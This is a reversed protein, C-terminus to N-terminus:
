ATRGGTLTFFAGAIRNSFRSGHRWFLRRGWSIGGTHRLGPRHGSFATRDPVVVSTVIGGYDSLTVSPGCRGDPYVFTRRGGTPLAGWLTNTVSVSMNIGGKQNNRAEIWSL